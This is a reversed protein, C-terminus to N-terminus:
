MLIIKVNMKENYTEKEKRMMHGNNWTIKARESGKSHNSRVFKMNGFCWFLCLGLPCMTSWVMHQGLTSTTQLCAAQPECSYHRFLCLM